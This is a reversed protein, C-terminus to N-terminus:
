LTITDDKWYGMAAGVLLTVDLKFDIKMNVREGEITPLTQATRMSGFERIMFPSKSGGAIFFGENVPLDVKSNLSDVFPNDIPIAISRSIKQVNISRLLEEKLPDTALGGALDNSTQKLAIDEILLSDAIFTPAVNSGYRLLRQEIGRFDKITGNSSDFVQGIPIEGNDKAAVILEYIKTYLYQVKEDAVMNVANKFENVPDSILKDVQYYAGFQHIEPRAPIITKNPSIRTFDVGAATATLALKIRANKPKEYHVKDYRGVKKYNSLANVIQEFRPQAVDDAVEVIIKNFSHLADVSTYEGNSNFTKNVLATIAQADSLVIKGSEDKKELMTNNYVRKGMEVVKRIDDFM